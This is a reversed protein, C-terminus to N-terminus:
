NFYEEKRNVWGLSKQLLADYDESLIKGRPIIPSNWNDINMVTAVALYETKYEYIEVFRKFYTTGGVTSLSEVIKYEGM